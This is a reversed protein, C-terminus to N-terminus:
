VASDHRCCALLIREFSINIILFLERMCTDALLPDSSIALVFWTSKSCYYERLIWRYYGLGVADETTTPYYFGSLLYGWIIRDSSM